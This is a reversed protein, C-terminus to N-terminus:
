RMKAFQSVIAAEEADLEGSLQGILDIGSYKYNRRIGSFCLDIFAVMLIVLMATNRDFSTTLLVVTEQSTILKFFSYFLMVDAVVQCTMIIRIRTMLTKLQYIITATTM